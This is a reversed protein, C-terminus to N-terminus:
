IIAVLIITPLVLCSAVTAFGVWYSMVLTTPSITRSLLVDIDRADSAKRMHFGIFVIVGVMIIVRASAATFAITMQETELMATSGLVSSIYAAMIIGALLGLFLRDRTATLLVYRINSLM